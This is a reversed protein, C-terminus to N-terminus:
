RADRWADTATPPPDDSGPFAKLLRRELEAVSHRTEEASELELVHLYLVSPDAHVEVVTTGPTLSVASTLIALVGHSRIGVPVRVIGQKGRISSPVVVARAVHINAIVFKRFFYETFVLLAIPRLTWRTLGGGPRFAALLLVGVALGGVVTNVTVQEWLALWVALLWALPVLWRIM